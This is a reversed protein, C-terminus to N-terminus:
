RGLRRWSRTSAIGARALIAASRATADTYLDREESESLFRVRGGRVVIRGDVLVTDVESGNAQYVLTAALDHAPVMQPRALDLIAIDAKKGVELSGIQSSMGVARAGEITLLELAHEATIAAADASVAKQTCALVKVDSLLNVSDNCCADDTGVGVTLGATTMPVVPAVGSGLYGNSVPQTSVRTGARLLLRIDRPTVHVCHGALLRADLCNHVDLYEASSMGLVRAESEVEAVHLAWSSDYQEALRRAAQM